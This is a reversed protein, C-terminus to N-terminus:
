LQCYNYYDFNHEICSSYNNYLNYIYTYVTGHVTLSTQIYTEYQHALTNEAVAETKLADLLQKRSANPNIELWLRFMQRRCSHTENCQQKIAVLGNDKLRLQLGLEEWKNTRVENELEVLEPRSSLVDM